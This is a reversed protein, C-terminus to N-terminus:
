TEPKERTRRVLKVALHGLLIAPPMKIWHSRVFLLFRALGAVRDTRGPPTGVIAARVLWDMLRRQMANPAFAAEAGDLVAPPVATGLLDAAYRLAYFLPRRLGHLRARDILGDWFGPRPGFFTLLDHLDLLDRLHGSPDEQFLHTAAHLVMDAAGLMWVGGDLPVAEALLAEADIRIGSVPPFITHHVDLETDREGHRLPPIEHMWDRYYHEDYRDMEGLQWGKELLKQEVRGLDARPVLIDLDVSFRGRASPLGAHLYAAGKLLIIKIGLGALARRVRDIEFRLTIANAEANARANACQRRAPEPLDRLRGLATLDRELRALLGHQRAAHLVDDLEAAGLAAVSAPDRMARLLPAETRRPPPGASAAVPVVMTTPAPAATRDLMDVVAM